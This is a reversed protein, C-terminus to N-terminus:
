RTSQTSEGGILSQAKVVVALVFGAFACLIALIFVPTSLTAATNAGAFALSLGRIFFALLTLGFAGLLLRVFIDQNLDM